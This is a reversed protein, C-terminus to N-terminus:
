VPRSLAYMSVSSSPMGGHLPINRHSGMSSANTAKYASVRVSSVTAPAALKVTVREDPGANYASTGAKTSWVSAATDDFAFKAPAGDDQSSASVVQAGAATSALNPALSITRAVNKGAAVTFGEITQTGFGPAQITLPYTGTVAKVTAGGASGTRVLPSVRAEFRGLIVRANGIPQGSTANVLTLAVTGNVAATPVDFGPKPETDDGTNSTASAGAGRYAFV